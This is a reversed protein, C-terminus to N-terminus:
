KVVVAVEYGDANAKTNYLRITCGRLSALADAGSAVSWKKSTSNYTYVVIDTAVEYNSTNIKVLNDSIKSSATAGAAISETPGVVAPTLGTIKNNSDVDVDWLETAAGSTFKSDATANAITYTAKAGDKLADVNAVSSGLTYGTVVIYTKDTAVTLDSVLLAEAKTGAANLCAQFNAKEGLLESSSIVSYKKANQKDAASSGNFSFVVSANKVDINNVVGNDSIATVTTTSTTAPAIGVVVGNEDITLKILSGPAIAAATGMIAGTSTNYDIKNDAYNATYDVQKGEASFVRLIPDTNVLKSNDFAQGDLLVAYVTSTDSSTQTAAYIKGNADLFAKVDKGLLARMGTSTDGYVIAGTAASIGYKTGGITYETHASNIATLNGEVVETGVAVKTIEAPTGATYVYVINDKKIDALSKVGELIFSNTDIENEGKTTFPFGLLTHTTGDNDNLEMYGLDSAAVKKAASISWKQESFVSAIKGADNLVVAYIAGDDNIAKTGSTSTKGNEFLNTIALTTPDSAVFSYGGLTKATADYDSVFTTQVEGVGVVKSYDVPTSIQGKFILKANAGLLKSLDVSESQAIKDEDILEFNGTECGLRDYPTEKWTPGSGATSSPKFEETDKSFVVFEDDLIGYIIQAVDKRPAAATGITMDTTIDKLNYAVKIYGAPYGGQIKDDPGYGLARMAFTIMEDYSVERDPRFTTASTGQIFGLTTGWYVYGSYWATAPVDEFKTQYSNGETVPLGLAAVIFKVAEARTITKEPRFTGDNYGEVVGLAKLVNVAEAYEADDAVDPFTAEAAFAMSVSGLVMALVLVFSLIKKM